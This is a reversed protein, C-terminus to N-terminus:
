AMEMELRTRRMSREFVEGIYKENEASVVGVKAKLFARYVDPMKHNDRMKGDINQMSHSRNGPYHRYNHLLRALVGARRSYRLRWLM